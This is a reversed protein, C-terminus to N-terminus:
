VTLLTKGSWDDQLVLLAPMDTAYDATSFRLTRTHLPVATFFWRYLLEAPLFCTVSPTLILQLPPPTRLYCTGRTYATTTRLRLRLIRYGTYSVRLHDRVRVASRLM